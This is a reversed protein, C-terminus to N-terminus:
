AIRRQAKKENYNEINDHIKPKYKDLLVKTIGKELNQIEENKSKIQTSIRSNFNTSKMKFLLLFFIEKKHYNSSLPSLRKETLYYSALNKIKM